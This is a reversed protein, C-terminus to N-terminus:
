ISNNIKFISFNFM